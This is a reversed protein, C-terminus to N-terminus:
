FRLLASICVNTSLKTRDGIGFKGIKWYRCDQFWEILDWNVLKHGHLFYSNFNQLNRAVNQFQASAFKGFITRVNSMRRFDFESEECNSVQNKGDHDWGSVVKEVWPSCTAMEGVTQGGVTGLFMSLAEMKLKNGHEFEFDEGFVPNTKEIVHWTALKM